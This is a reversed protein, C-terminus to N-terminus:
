FKYDGFQREEVELIDKHFPERLDKTPRNSMMGQAWYRLSSV